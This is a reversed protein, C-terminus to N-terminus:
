VMKFGIGWVTQIYSADANGKSLKQRINSIHVNVANDEGIFPENWVSEFINNKTFVKKPNSMLLELILFEHKTLLIPTTGVLVELSSKDLTIDKYTLTTQIPSNSNYHRRLLAEMRAILEDNDFPKTIYDDAGKNLVSIKTQKDDKASVAIIPLNSEKQIEFLVQEGSLGPLMLDLLALDFSQEKMFRLGETGSYASTVKYHNHSLLESLMHNIDNDDEIILISPQQM